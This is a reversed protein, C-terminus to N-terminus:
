RGLRAELSEVKRELYDIRALLDVIISAGVSTLSFDRCIRNLKSLRYTDRAQFLYEEQSTVLPEIWGLEVLEGLLSPHVGTRDVFENWTLLKSRAPVGEYRRVVIKM